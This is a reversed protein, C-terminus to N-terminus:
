KITISEEGEAAKGLRGVTLGLPASSDVQRLSGVSYMVAGARGTDTGGERAQEGEMGAAMLRDMRRDKFVQNPQSSQVESGWPENRFTCRLCMAPFKM